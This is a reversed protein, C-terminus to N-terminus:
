FILSINGYLYIRLIGIIILHIPYYYYFLWKLNLSGKKGNYLSLIPFSLFTFLQLVGYVKDIFIFYVVSYMLTCIFISLCQYKFNDRNKKILFIALVSLCSWDSPFTILFIFITLLNRKFDSINRKDDFYLLVVAWFFSWIIGTSNFISKPVFSIGFAFCYAFHSLIAFIFLRLMYKKVNKTYHYGEAIFYWMIPATIRGIIHLLLVYWTHNLGPFFTWTFHDITMALIAIIKLTNSNLKKM